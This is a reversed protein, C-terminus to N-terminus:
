HAWPAVQLVYRCAAIISRDIHDLLPLMPHECYTLQLCRVDGAVITPVPLCRQHFWRCSLVSLAPATIKPLWDFAPLILLAAWSHLCPLFPASLCGRDASCASRAARVAELHATICVGVETDEFTIQVASGGVAEFSHKLSATLM